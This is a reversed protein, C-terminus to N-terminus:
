STFNGSLIESLYYKGDEDLVFFAGMIFCSKSEGFAIGSYWLANVETSGGETVNDKADLHLNFITEEVNVKILSPIGELSIREEPNTLDFAILNVERVEPESTPSNLIITQSSEKEGGIVVNIVKRSM